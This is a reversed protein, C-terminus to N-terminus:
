ETIYWLQRGAPGQALRLISRLAHLALGRGRHSEATWTDGVQLDQRAQFPFRFYGPFVFSRHVVTAAERVVLIAYDRNAFARTMHMLWWVRLAPNTMGQPLAQNWRPCWLEAELGEPWVEAPVGPDPARRYFLFEPRTDASDNAAMPRTEKAPPSSCAVRPRPVWHWRCPTSISIAAPAAWLRANRRRRATSASWRRQWRRPMKPRAPSAPM